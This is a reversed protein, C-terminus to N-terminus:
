RRLTCKGASGAVYLRQVEASTLPREYVTVEDIIGTFPHHERITSHWGIQLPTSGEGISEKAKGQAVVTGDVYLAVTGGARGDWTGVIHHFAGDSIPPGKLLFNLDGPTAKSGWLGVLTASSPAEFDVYRTGHYDATGAPDIFLGMGVGKSAGGGDSVILGKPSATQVWAELTAGTAYRHTYPTEVVSQGDFLLAKGVKGEIFGTQGTFSANHHALEDDVTSTALDENGSWWAVLSGPAATCKGPGTAAPLTRIASSGCSALVFVLPASWQRSARLMPLARIVTHQTRGISNVCIAGM